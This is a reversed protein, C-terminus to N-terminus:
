PNLHDPSNTVKGNDRSSRLVDVGGGAFQFLKPSEEKLRQDCLNRDEGTPAYCETGIPYREGSSPTRETVFTHM